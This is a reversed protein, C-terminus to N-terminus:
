APVALALVSLGVVLAEVHRRVAGGRDFQARQHAHKGVCRTALHGQKRAALRADFEDGLRRERVFAPFQVHAFGCHGTEVKGRRCDPDVVVAVEKCTRSRPERDDALAPLARVVREELQLRVCSVRTKVTKRLFERAVRTMGERELVNSQEIGLSGCRDRVLRDDDIAIVDDRDAHGILRPNGGVGLADVATALRQQGAEEVHVHVHLRGVAQEVDRAAHGRATVDAVVDLTERAHLRLPVRAIGDPRSEPLCTEDVPRTRELCRGSDEDVCVRRGLRADVLVGIEAVHLDLDVARQLGFENGHNRGGSM